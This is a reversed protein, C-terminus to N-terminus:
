AWRVESLIAYSAVIYVEEMFNYKYLTVYVHSQSDAQM